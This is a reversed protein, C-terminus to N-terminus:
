TTIMKLANTLEKSLLRRSKITNAYVINSVSRDFKPYKRLTAVYVYIVVLVSVNSIVSYFSKLSGTLKIRNFEKGVIWELLSTIQAYPQITTNNLLINNIIKLKSYIQANYKNTPKALSVTPNTTLIVLLACLGLRDDTSGNILTEDILKSYLRGVIAYKTLNDDDDMIQVFSSKSINLQILLRLLITEYNVWIRTFIIEHAYKDGNFMLRLTLLLLSEGYGHNEIGIETNNCTWLTDRFTEYKLISSLLYENM